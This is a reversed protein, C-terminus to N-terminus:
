IASTRRRPASPSCPAGIAASPFSASSSSALVAFGAAGTTFLAARGLGLNDSLLDGAITGFTSAVVMSVWYTANAAPLFISLGGPGPAAVITNQGFRAGIRLTLVLAVLSACLLAPYSIRLQHTLLDAIDTAGARSVLIALWYQIEGVFAIRNRGFALALFLLAFPPFAGLFGLGLTSSALDGLNAGGISATMLLLWYRIDIEPLGRM